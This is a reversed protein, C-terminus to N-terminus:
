ATAYCPESGPDLFGNDPASPLAASPLSCLKAAADQPAARAAAGAPACSMQVTSLLAFSFAMATVAGARCVVVATKGLSSAM